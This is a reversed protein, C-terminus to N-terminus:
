GRGHCEDYGAITEAEVVLATLAGLDTVDELDLFRRRIAELRPDAIRSSTFDDIDWDAGTGDRFDRLYAAVEGASMRVPRSFPALLLAVILGPVLLPLLAILVIVGLLNQGLSNGRGFLVKGFVRSM